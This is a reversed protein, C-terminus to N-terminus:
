NDKKLYIRTKKFHEKDELLNKNEDVYIKLMDTLCTKEKDSGDPNGSQSYILYDREAIKKYVCKDKDSMVISNKYVLCNNNYGDCDFCNNGFM